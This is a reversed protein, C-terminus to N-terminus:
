ASSSTSRRDALMTRLEEAIPHPTWPMLFWRLRPMFLVRSGFLTPHNFILAIPRTNLWRNEQVEAIDALPVQIERLYNSIRLVSGDLRVRKLRM